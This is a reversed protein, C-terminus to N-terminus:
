RYRWRCTPCRIDSRFAKFICHNHFAHSCPLRLFDLERRHLMHCAGCRAGALRTAAGIEGLLDRVAVLRDDHIRTDLITLEQKYLVTASVSLHPHPATARRHGQRPRLLPRRPPLPSSPALHAAGPFSAVVDFWADGASNATKYTAPSAALLAAADFSSSSSGLTEVPGRRDLTSTGNITTVYQLVRKWTIEIVVVTSSSSPTPTPVYEVRPEGICVYPHEIQYHGPGKDEVAEVEEVKKAEAVVKKAEAVMPAEAEAKKAEAVTPAEAM